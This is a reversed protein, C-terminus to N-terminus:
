SQPDVELGKALGKNLRDAKISYGLVALLHHWDARPYSAALWGHLAFTRELWYSDQQGLKGDFETPAGHTEEFWKVFNAPEIDAWAYAYFRKPSGLIEEAEENTM